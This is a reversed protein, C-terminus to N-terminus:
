KKINKLPSSISHSPHIHPLRNVLLPHIFHLAQLKVQKRLCCVPLNLTAWSAVTIVYSSNSIAESHHGTKKFHYCPRPTADKVEHIEFQTTHEQLIYINKTAMEIGQAIEIYRQYVQDNVHCVLRGKM